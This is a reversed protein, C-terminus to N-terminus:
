ILSFVVACACVCMCAYTRIYVNLFGGGCLGLGGLFAKLFTCFLVFVFVWMPFFDVDVHMQLIDLCCCCCFCGSGVVLFIRSVMAEKAEMNPATSKEAMAALAVIM